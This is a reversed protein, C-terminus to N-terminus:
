RERNNKEKYYKMINFLQSAGMNKLIKNQTIKNEKCYELYKQLGKKNNINSYSDHIQIWASYHAFMSMDAIEYNRELFKLFYNDYDHEYYDVKKIKNKDYPKLLFKDELNKDILVAFSKKYDEINLLSYILYSNNKLNSKNLVELIDKNLQQKLKIKNKTENVLEKHEQYKYYGNLM